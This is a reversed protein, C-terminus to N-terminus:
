ENAGIKIRLILSRGRSPYGAIFEAREDLVDRLLFEIDIPVSKLVRSSRLSVDWISVPPLENIGGHNPFREGLRRWAIRLDVPGPSLNLQLNQNNRPRYIVQPGNPRDYTVSTFSATADITATLVPLGLTGGFELGSRNVDYNGPSWVFRFDPSWIIMGKVRGAYARVRLAPEVSPSATKWGLAVEAEFPVREPELDPNIRIGVGERYTLNSLVPPATSSGIGANLSWPGKSLTGDLRLSLAPSNATTWVDFRATPALWWNVDGILGDASTEGVVYGRFVSYREDRVANGWTHDIRGGARLVRWRGELGVAGAWTSDDYPASAPPTADRYTTRVLDGFFELGHNPFVWSINARTWFTTARATSSPNSLTGPLGRAETEALLSVTVDGPHTRFAARLSRSDANARVSEGGGRNVPLTVPFESGTRKGELHVYTTPNLHLKASGGAVGYSGGWVEAKSTGTERLEVILAGALARGGFRATQPGSYLSVSKVQSVPIRSLDAVGTTPDNLPVGDVLVLVEDPASARIIPAAGRSGEERIVVSEWGDLAEALTRGRRDLDARAITPVRARTRGLVSIPSLEVAYRLLEFQVHTAAGNRVSVLTDSRAYGVARVTIRHTGPGVGGFLFRGDLGTVTRLDGVIVEAQPIPAGTSDDTVSGRIEGPSQSSLPANPVLLLLVALGTRVLTEATRRLSVEFRCAGDAQCAQAAVACSCEALTICFM